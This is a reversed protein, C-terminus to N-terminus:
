ELSLLCRRPNEGGAPHCRTRRDDFELSLEGRRYASFVRDGNRRARRGDLQGQPAQAKRLACLHQGGRHRETARNVRDNMGAQLRDEHIHVRLGHHGVRLGYGPGSASCSADVGHHHEM